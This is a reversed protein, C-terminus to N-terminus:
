PIEVLINVSCLVLLNLLSKPHLLLVKFYLERILTLNHSAHSHYIIANYRIRIPARIQSCKSIFCNTEMCINAYMFDHFIM